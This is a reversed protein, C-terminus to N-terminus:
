VTARGLLGQPKVILMLIVLAFAIATGYDLNVWLGTLMTVLGLAMGGLAAGWISGIGGLFVAMFAILVYRLGMTPSAAGNLTVFQAMLGAMASGVAFVVQYVRRRSIGVATAMTPNTRVATVSRGYTTRGIFWAVGVICAWALVVSVVDVVTFTVSGLSMTAVPFGPLPRQTASFLLELGATGVISVALAAIFVNISETSRREVIAYPGAQIALGVLAAFGTGLLMALYVPAGFWQTSMVAAYAGSTFVLAHALHFIRTTSYILGFSVAMAAYLSGLVVGSVLLQALLELNM